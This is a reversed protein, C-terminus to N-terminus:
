VHLTTVADCGCVLVEPDVGPLAVVLRALQKNPMKKMLARHAAMLEEMTQKREAATEESPTGPAELEM